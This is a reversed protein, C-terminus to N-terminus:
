RRHGTGLPGWGARINIKGLGPRIPKGPAGAVL